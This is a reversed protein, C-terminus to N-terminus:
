QQTIYLEFNIVVFDGRCVTPFGSAPSPSSTGRDTHSFSLWSSGEINGFTLTSSSPFHAHPRIKSHHLRRDEPSLTFPFSTGSGLPRQTLELGSSLYYGFVENQVLRQAGAGNPLAHILVVCGEGKYGQVKEALAALSKGDENKEYVKRWGGRLERSPIWSFLSEWLQPDKLINSEQLIKPRITVTGTLIVDKTVPTADKPEQIEKKSLNMMFASNFLREADKVAPNCYEDPHVGMSDLYKILSVAMRYLVPVGENLFIDFLRSAMYLPLVNTFLSEVWQLCVEGLDLDTKKKIRQYAQPLKGKILSDLQRRLATSDSVIHYNPMGTSEVIHNLASFTDGDSLKQILFCAVTPLIPFYRLCPHHHGLVSLVYRVRRVEDPSLEHYTTRLEPAGFLPCKPTFMPYKEMLDEWQFTAKFEKQFLAVGERGTNVPLVTKYYGEKQSVPVGQRVANKFDKKIMLDTYNQEKIVEEHELKLHLSKEKQHKLMDAEATPKVHPTLEIAIKICPELPLEGGYPVRVYADMFSNYYRLGMAGCHEKDKQSESRIVNRKRPGCSHTPMTLILSKAAEQHLELVVPEPMALNEREPDPAKREIVAELVYDGINFDTGLQQATLSCLDIVPSDGSGTLLIRVAPRVRRLPDDRIIEDALKEATIVGEDGMDLILGRPNKWVDDTYKLYLVPM